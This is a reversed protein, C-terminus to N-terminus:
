DNVESSDNRKGKILKDKLGGFMKGVKEAAPATKEKAKNLLESTKEGAQQLLPDVKNKAKDVFDEKVELTQVSVLLEDFILEKVCRTINNRRVETEDVIPKIEKYPLASENLAELEADIAIETKILQEMELFISQDVDCKRVIHTILRKEIKGYEGDALSMVLLDWVLMRSPIGEELSDAKVNLADDCHELIVDYLYEGDASRVANECEEFLADKYKPFNDPDIENGISQLRDMESQAITDDVAMLYYFIRVASKKDILLM